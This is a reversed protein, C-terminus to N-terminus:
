SVQGAGHGGSPRSRWPPAFRREEGHLLRKINGRHAYFVIAAALLAAIVYPLPSDRVILLIPLSATAVLSALSVIRVTFVLVLWTVFLILFVTPELALVAGAGTAVGKGGRGRLFVSYMHGVVPAAAIFTAPWPGFVLTAVLAPLFGKCVDLVFVAVGAKKGLVRFVNTTGVNGSGHERVDVGYALRGVILGFPIAGVLYALVLLVLFLAITM